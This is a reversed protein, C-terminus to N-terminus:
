QSVSYHPFPSHPQHHSPAPQLTSHGHKQTCISLSMSTYQLYRQLQLHLQTVQLGYPHYEVKLASLRHESDTWGNLEGSGKIVVFAKNSPHDEAQWTM